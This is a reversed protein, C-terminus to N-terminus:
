TYSLMVMRKTVCIMKAQADKVIERMVERLATEREADEETYTNWYLYM